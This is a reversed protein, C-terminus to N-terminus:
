LLLSTGDCHFNDGIGLIALVTPAIDMLTAENRNFKAGEPHSLLLVATEGKHSGPQINHTQCPTILPQNIDWGVGYDDKLRFLIDPYKHLYPGNYVEERRCVWQFVPQNDQPILIGQIKKMIFDRLEAYDRSGLRDRAIM